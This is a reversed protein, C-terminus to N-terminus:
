YGHASTSTLLLGNLKIDDWLIQFDLEHSAVEQSTDTSLSDGSTQPDLSTAAVPQDKILSTHSISPVVDPLRLPSPESFILHSSLRHDGSLRDKSLPPPSTPIHTKQSAVSSTLRPAPTYLTCPQPIAMRASHPLKVSLSPPSTPKQTDPTFPDSLICASDPLKHSLPPPSTTTQAKCSSLCLTHLGKYTINSNVTNIPYIIEVNKNQM